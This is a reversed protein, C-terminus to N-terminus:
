VGMFQTHTVQAALDPNQSLCNLLSSVYPGCLLSEMLGPSAMIEELLSQMGSVPVLLICISFSLFALFIQLLSSFYMKSLKSMLSKTIKHITIKKGATVTRQPDARPSAPLKRLPDTSHSSFPPTQDREGEPKGGTTPVM